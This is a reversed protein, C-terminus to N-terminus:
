TDKRNAVSLDLQVKSALPEAKFIALAAAIADQKKKLENAVVESVTLAPLSPYGDGLLATVKELVNDMAALVDEILSNRHRRASIADHLITTAEASLGAQSLTDLGEIQPNVLDLAARLEARFGPGPDDAM